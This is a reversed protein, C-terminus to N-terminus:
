PTQRPQLASQYVESAIRAGSDMGAMSDFSFHVGLYVRSIANELVAENLNNYTRTVVPRPLGDEGRNIGNFEDSTFQFRIGATGYFLATMDLAATGMTAHGSTYAPFPPTFGMGDGAANTAPSGLPMFLPDGVTWPNGDDDGNQIAVVPRWFEYVYKTYWCQIAADAMALNILAFLRANQEVSNRRQSAIVRVIQNYLRPPTGIGPVGDYAWFIGTETDYPARNTPTLLGDGGFALVQYYAVAYEFSDLAPPPPSLHAPVDTIVFPDVLGWHPAHFGQDPHFPDPRHYGPLTSYNYPLNLDANDTARHTLMRDAVLRGLTIGRNRPTGTPVTSLVRSYATQFRNLQQPYLASLTDLAAKSIAAERNAQQYGAALTLYPQYHHHISNWADFVAASVIAFARTTRTPGGQDPLALSHDAANADLMIQNWYLVVDSGPRYPPVATQALGSGATFMWCLGCMWMLTARQFARM